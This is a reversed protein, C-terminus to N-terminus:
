LTCGGTFGLAQFSTTESGTKNEKTVRLTLESVGSGDRKPSCYEFLYFSNAEDWVDQGIEQFKAELEDKNSALAMGNPGLQQLVPVDIEGGVGITFFTMDPDANELASFAAEKTYRGAQDTGDTFIVTSTAALIGKQQITSLEGTAIQAGKIVAGYLDTSNDNSITPTISDIGGKLTNKDTTFGVLEHLKDEGDFWFIGMYYSLNSGDPMIADIFSKSADKLETLYNETVSASLDLLLITSYQFIQSNDSIKREAEFESIEKPGEDNRGKEFIVFNPETLGAVPDGNKTEVKFFVSVKAPPSTFQDQVTIVLDNKVPIPKDRKCGVLIFPVLLIFLSKLASTKSM